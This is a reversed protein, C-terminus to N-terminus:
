NQQRDIIQRQQNPYGMGSYIDDTLPIEKNIIPSTNLISYPSTLTSYGVVNGMLGGNMPLENNYNWTNNNFNKHFNTSNNASQLPADITETLNTEDNKDNYTYYKRLDEINSIMNPTNYNTTYHNAPDVGRKTYITTKEVPPLEYVELKNNFRVKKNSFNENSKDCYFNLVFYIMLLLLFAIVFYRNEM